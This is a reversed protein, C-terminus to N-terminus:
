EDKLCKVPNVRAVKFTQIGVTFWAILLAIFAAGAFVWWKLEIQYAFNELWLDAFFYSIPIGFAVAILLMKTFEGSLLSVIGVVSSGLIKRIGIEKLRREGSYAALGFLGLCSILIALVTFYSALSSMREEAKYLAEYDDDLFKYDLTYGPNFTAHFDQLSTIAEKEMGSEIKLLNWFNNRSLYFFAPKVEEHFSNFHFNNTVGVIERDQGWLKVIKGIPDEIQMFAIAAENFVIKSSDSGYRPDFSRGLVMQIDLLEIMGYDVPMREFETRDKPDKGPWNIGYTGGNHGTMDHGSSSVGNIGSLKNAEQLFTAQSTVLKGEGAFLIINDKQYGLNKNKVFQIQQYVIWVSVILVITITFQFVVLWQRAWLAGTKRKLKGKLSKLPSFSSLYLAPYSGAMLGTTVIVIAVFGILQRNVDIVLQKETILNFDALALAVLCIAVALSIITIIISEGMHQYMIAMRGAGLSKKIGIEKMRRSARATTLNMFNICAIFLIFLAIISFLKIYDIRGGAQVGNEYNDYLYVNAYSTLFPRRHKVEGETKISVLNQIKENFAKINTGPEVLVYTQPATNYWNTVWNNEDWFREFSLVFDFNLSSNKAPNEFVGAVKYETQHQMKIVKGVIGVSTGFLKNALRDSIVVASKDALVQTKEGALLPYSFLDFFNPSAYFGKAKVDKDDVSWTYNSLRKVTATVASTVEPYDTLLAKATPGATTHRTIIRDAQDVHEMVQFLIKENAHFKDIALEDSVWLYILLVCALASSLGILNIIFSSRYKNFNRFSLMFNHRFMAITNPHYNPKLSKIFGARLYKIVTWYFNWKAKMPSQRYQIEFLEVLDGEIEELYDNRCFWRLFNIAYKPPQPAM